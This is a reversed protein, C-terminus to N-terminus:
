DDDFNIMEFSSHSLRSSSTATELAHTCLYRLRKQQNTHVNHHVYRQSDRQSDDSVLYYFKAHIIQILIRGRERLVSLYPQCEKDNPVEIAEDHIIEDNFSVLRSCLFKAKFCTNLGSDVKCAYLAPPVDPISEIATIDLPRDRPDVIQIRLYIVKEVGRM